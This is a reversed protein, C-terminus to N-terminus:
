FKTEKKKTWKQETSVDKNHYWTVPTEGFKRFWLFPTQIFQNIKWIIKLIYFAFGFACMKYFKLGDFSLCQM